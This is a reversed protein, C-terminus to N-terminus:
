LWRTQLLREESRLMLREIEDLGRGTVESREMGALLQLSRRIDALLESRGAHRPLLWRQRCLPCAHSWAHNQRISREVCRRGLVHQCPGCNIIRLPYEPDGEGIDPHTCQESYTYPQLCIPCHDEDEPLSALPVPETHRSLFNQIIFEPIRDPM